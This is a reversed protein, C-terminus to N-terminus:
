SSGPKQLRRTRITERRTQYDKEDQHVMSRLEVTQSTAGQAYRRVTEAHKGLDNAEVILDADYLTKYTKVGEATLARNQVTIRNEQGQKLWIGLVHNGDPTRVSGIAEIIDLPCYLAIGTTGRREIAKETVVASLKERSGPYAVWLLAGGIVLGAVAAAIKASTAAPFILGPIIAALALAGIIAPPTNWKGIEEEPIIYLVRARPAAM